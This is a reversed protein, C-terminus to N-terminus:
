ADLASKWIPVDRKMRAIFEDAAALAEARHAAHITLRFSCGGGAVPVEGTSHAVYLAHLRHRAAIEHALALMTRSAMPEYAEYNLARIPRGAEARRVHGTFVLLAGAEGCEAPDLTPAAPPLPGAVFQVSVKPVHSM